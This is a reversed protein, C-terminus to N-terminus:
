SIPDRPLWNINIYHCKTLIVSLILLFLGLSQLPARYLSFQLCITNCIISLVQTTMIINKKSFFVSMFNMIKTELKFSMCYIMNAIKWVKPLLHYQCDELSWATFSIPLSGSKLCYIINAIKWVKPIDTIEIICFM